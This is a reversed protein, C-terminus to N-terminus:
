DQRQFKWKASKVINNETINKLDAYSKDVKDISELVTADTSLGALPTPIGSREIVDKVDTYKITKPLNVKLWPTYATGYNLDNIGVNTRFESGFPDNEKLDFIGVRDQLDRCQMLAAVQVNAVKIADMTVADPFLIMTPEDEKSLATIGTEFAPQDITDNYNGVSVIYCDGGGNAYFMRLSDYMFTKIASENIQSM